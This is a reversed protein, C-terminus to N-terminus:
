CGVVLVFLVMIAVGIYMGGLITGTCALSLGSMRQMMPAGFWVCVGM